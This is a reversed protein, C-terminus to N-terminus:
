VNDTIAVDCTVGNDTALGSIFTAWDDAAAQTTWVRKTVTPSIVIPIGDTTGLTIATNLYTIRADMIPQLLQAEATSWTMTTLKTYM